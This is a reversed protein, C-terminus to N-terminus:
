LHTPYLTMQHLYSQRSVIHNCINITANHAASDHDHRMSDPVSWSSPARSRGMAPEESPIDLSSATRAYSPIWHGAHVSAILVNVHSCKDMQQQFGSPFLSSLLSSVKPEGAAATKFPRNPMTDDKSSVSSRKMSRNKTQPPRNATGLPGSCCRENVLDTAAPFRLFFLFILLADGGRVARDVRLRLEPQKGLRVDVAQIAQRFALVM